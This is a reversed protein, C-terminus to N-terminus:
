PDERAIYLIRPSALIKFRRCVEDRKCAIALCLYLLLLSKFRKPLGGWWVLGHTPLLTEVLSPTAPFDWEDVPRHLPWTTVSTGSLDADVGTDHDAIESDLRLWKEFLGVLKPGDGKLLEALRPGGTVPQGAKLKTATDVVARGRKDWEEDGAVRAA